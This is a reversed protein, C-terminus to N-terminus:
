QFRLPFFSPIGSTATLEKELGAIVERILRAGHPTVRNPARSVPREQLPRPLAEDIERVFARSM